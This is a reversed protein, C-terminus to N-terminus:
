DRFGALAFDVRQLGALYYNFVCIQFLGLHQDFAHFRFLARIYGWFALGQQCFLFFVVKILFIFDFHMKQLLKTKLSIQFQLVLLIPFFFGDDLILLNPSDLYVFFIFIYGTYQLAKM